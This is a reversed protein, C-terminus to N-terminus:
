HKSPNFHIAIESKNNFNTISEIINYKFKSINKYHELFRKKLKGKAREQMFKIVNKVHSSIFLEM